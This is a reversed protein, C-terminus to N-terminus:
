TDVAKLTGVLALRPYHTYIEEGCVNRGDCEGGITFLKDGRLNTQPLNDNMPYGGCGKPMLCPETSSSATAVGFEDKVTDFVFVDNYYESGQQEQSAACSKHCRSRDKLPPPKLPDCMQMANNYGSTPGTTKNPYAIEDYEYGGILIIYRDLFAGHEGGGTQFNGTAMPSDALRTWKQTPPTFKWNDVVTFSGTGWDSPGSVAGGIVYIEGNVATVSHVWRPVGPLDPLRQWRAAAGLSTDLSHIGAGLPTRGSVCEAQVCFGTSNYDAGGVVYLVNGIAVVGM